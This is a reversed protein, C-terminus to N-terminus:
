GYRGAVSFGLSLVGLALDIAMLRTLRRRAIVIEDDDTSDTERLLPLAGFVAVLLIAGMGLGTTQVAEIAWPWNAPTGLEAYALAWGSLLTIAMAALALRLVRARAGADDEGLLGALLLGTWSAYGALHLGLLLSVELGSM